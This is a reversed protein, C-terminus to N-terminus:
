SINNQESKPEVNTYSLWMSAMQNYNVLKSLQSKILTVKTHVDITADNIIRELEDEAKLRDALLDANVIQILRDM